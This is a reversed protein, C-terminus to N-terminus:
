VSNLTGEVPPPLRDDSRSLLPIIGLNKENSIDLTEILQIKASRVGFTMHIVVGDIKPNWGNTPIWKWTKSGRHNPNIKQNKRQQM